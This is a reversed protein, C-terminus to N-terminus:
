IEPREGNPAPQRNFHRIDMSIALFKVEDANMGTKSISNVQPDSRLRM